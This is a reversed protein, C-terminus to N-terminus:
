DIPVLLSPLLVLLTEGDDRERIPPRTSIILRVRSTENTSLDSSSFVSENTM